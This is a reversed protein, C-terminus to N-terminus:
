RSRYLSHPLKTFDIHPILIPSLPAQRKKNKPNNAGNQAIAVVAAALVFVAAGVSITLAVTCVATLKVNIVPADPEGQAM